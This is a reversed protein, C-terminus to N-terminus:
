LGAEYIAVLDTSVDGSQVLSLSGANANVQVKQGASLTQAADFRLRNALATNVTAAFNADDGMAAALENLQDLAGPAGNVLDAVATAVKAEIETSSYTTTLSAAADNIAAAGIDDPSDPISPTGTLDGYSGSTAVNALEGPQVATAVVASIRSETKSSSYVTETSAATDNIQAGAAGLQGVIENIAAVLNSKAATDLASLDAANGNVLTLITKAQTAQRTILDQLNSELSM